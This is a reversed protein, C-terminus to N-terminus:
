TSFPGHQIRARELHHASRPLGGYQRGRGVLRFSKGYGQQFAHRRGVGTLVNIRLVGSSRQHPRFAPVAIIPQVRRRRSPQPRGCLSRAGFAPIEGFRFGSGGLRRFRQTVPVTHDIPFAALVDPGAKLTKVSASPWQKTIESPLKKIVPLKVDALPDPKPFRSLHDPLHKQLFRRFVYATKFTREGVSIPLLGNSDVTELPISIRRSAADIARPLFFCPFDDTVVVCACEGLKSLLGKGEDRRSELYPHYLMTKGSFRRQNGAHRQYHVRATSRKGVPLRM